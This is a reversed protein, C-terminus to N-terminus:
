LGESSTVRDFLLVAASAAVLLHREAEPATPGLVIRGPPVREVAAVPQENRIFVTGTASPLTLESPLAVFTTRAQYVIEGRRLDGDEAVKFWLGKPKVDTMLNLLWPESAASDTLGCVLFKVERLGIEAESDEGTWTLKKTGVAWVCRGEFLTADEAGEHALRFAFEQTAEVNEYGLSRVWVTLGATEVTSMKLRGVTYPAIRLPRKTSSSPGVKIVTVDDQLEPPLPMTQRQMLRSFLGSKPADTPQDQATAASAGVVILGTLISMRAATGPNTALM